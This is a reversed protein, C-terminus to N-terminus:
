ALTYVVRVKKDVKVESKTVLGEKILATCASSVQGVTLGTATAVDGRSFSGENESLFALVSARRASTERKEKSDASSRKANKADLKAISDLAFQQIEESVNATSVAVFFERTTM